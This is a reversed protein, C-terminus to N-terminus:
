QLPSQQPTILRILERLRESKYDHLRLNWRDTVDSPLHDNVTGTLLFFLYFGFPPFTARQRHRPTVTKLRRECFDWKLSDAIKENSNKKNEWHQYLKRTIESKLRLCPDTM